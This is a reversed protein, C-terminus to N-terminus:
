QTSLALVSVALLYGSTTYGSVNMRTALTSGASSADNARIRQVKLTPILDHLPFCHCVWAGARVYIDEPHMTVATIAMAYVFIWLAIIGGYFYFSPLRYGKVVAMFTHIAIALIFVSSALDGTSVFWGQAWCLGTGVELADHRLSNVNLLFAISQQIDALVLNYILILFQNTPAQSGSKRRWSILRYTLFLCLSSSFFFSM